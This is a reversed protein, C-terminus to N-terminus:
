GTKCLGDDADFLDIQKDNVAEKRKLLHKYTFDHWISGLITAYMDLDSESLEYGSKTIIKGNRHILNTEPIFGLYYTELLERYGDPIENREIWRYCTSLSVKCVKEIQKADLFVIISGKKLHFKKVRLTRKVSDM